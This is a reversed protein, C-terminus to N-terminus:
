KVSDSFEISRRIKDIFDTVNITEGTAFHKVETLNNEQVVAQLRAFLAENHKLRDGKYYFVDAPQEIGEPVVSQAGFADHINAFEVESPIPKEEVTRERVFEGQENIAM